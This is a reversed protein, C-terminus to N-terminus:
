KGRRQAISSALQIASIMSGPNAIGKGAINFATGHDPSTRIIKLGASFNVGEDFGSMKLPILGQDHYMALIADYKKYMGSAFFGDASFPGAAKINKEQAKKIAPAIVDKEEMGIAGNEGAHPNVGLVAISPDSIGFDNKLSSQVTSLKEVIRDTFLNESVNKLPIHVTALAVRMTKSILMMAVRESRTLMALMETQGPFNYGAFHLAEKSIPATVMADVSKDMCLSIAREIAQGACVGADPANKGILLNKTTANHVNIVPIDNTTVKAKLNEVQTLSINIKFLKAYHQFLEFSGILIPQINKRVSPTIISRLVVEPGIGNFDGITIAIKPKM